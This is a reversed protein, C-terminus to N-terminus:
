YLVRNVNSQRTSFSHSPQSGLMTFKDVYKQYAKNFHLIELWQSNKIVDPNDFLKNLSTELLSKRKQLKDNMNSYIFDTKTKLTFGLSLNINDIFEILEKYKYKLNIEELCSNNLLFYLFVEYFVQIKFDSELLTYFPIEVRINTIKNERALTKIYDINSTPTYHISTLDQFFMNILATKEIDESAKFVASNILMELNTIIGEKDLNLDNVISLFQSWINCDISKLLSEVDVIDKTLTKIEFDYHITFIFKTQNELCLLDDVKIEKIMIKNDRDESLPLFSDRNPNRKYLERYFYKYEFDEKSLVKKNNEGKIYKNREVRYIHSINLDEIGLFKIFDDTILVPHNLINNIYDTISQKLTQGDTKIETVKIPIYKGILSSSYKNRSFEKRMKADLDLLDNLNRKTKRKTFPNDVYVKMNIYFVNFWDKVLCFDSNYNCELKSKITVKIDPFVPIQEPEYKSIDDFSIDKSKIPIDTNLAFNLRNFRANTFRGSSSRLMEVPVTRYKDILQFSPQKILEIGLDPFNEYYLDNPYLIFIYQCYIAVVIGLLNLTV